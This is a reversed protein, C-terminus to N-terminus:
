LASKRVREQHFAVDWRHLMPHAPDTDRSSRRTPACSPSSRAEVEDVAAQVKGLFENVAAPTQAMRRKITYTAYDPM